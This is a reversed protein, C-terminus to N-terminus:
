NLPLETLNMPIIDVFLFKGSGAYIKGTEFLENWNVHSLPNPFSLQLAELLKEKSSYFSVPYKVAEHDRMDKECLLYYEAPKLSMDMTLYVYKESLIM